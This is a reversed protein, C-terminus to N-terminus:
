DYVGGAGDISTKCRSCPANRQKSGCFIGKRTVKADDPINRLIIQEALNINKVVDKPLM